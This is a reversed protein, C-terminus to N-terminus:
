DKTKKWVEYGVGEWPMGREFHTPWPYAPQGSKDKIERVSGRPKAPNGFVVTEPMVDKTVVSAAGVLADHGIRVGPLVITGTSIVAFPEIEVGCMVDSPPQPDNTLVVYPFLWVFSHIVSRQGVHVNSHLHAHDELVCYGQIDSLTGVRVHDGIKTCERITVRHGSQFDAGIVTDGYIITESRILAAEGITLPHEGNHLGAYYDQLYEGLICRAGIRSNKGIRVNDRIICGQDIWVDDEIVVNEGITVDDHIIATKAIRATKSIFGM